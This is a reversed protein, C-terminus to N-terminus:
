RTATTPSVMEPDQCRIFIGSNAPDDVWFELTLVFDSYSSKTILHGSDGTGEVINGSVTWNTDGLQNFSDLNSGDFLSMQATAQQGVLLLATLTAASAFKM